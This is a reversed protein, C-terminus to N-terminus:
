LEIESALVEIQDVSIFPGHGAGPCVECTRQWGAPTEINSRWFPWTRCQRPRVPYITCGRTQPDLFVCDGNPYERLSVLGKAPRCHLLRIEGAPRGLHEAIAAVEGDDVWVYGPTGSCCNGCQTCAFALGDRYWPGDAESTEM